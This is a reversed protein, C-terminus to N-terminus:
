DNEEHFKDNIQYCHCPQSAALIVNVTQGGHAVNNVKFRALMVNARQGVASRVLKDGTASDYRYRRNASTSFWM